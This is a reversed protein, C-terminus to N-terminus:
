FDFRAGFTWGQLFLDGQNAFFKGFNFDDCFIPFQNQGFYVHSEWGAQLGLHFRDDDFKTDWRLGLLLDIVPHAIRRLRDKVRAYKGKPLSSAGNSFSVTAPTDKDILRIKHRGYLIAASIDTFISWGGGLGWQSDLGGELGVGRWRDHYRIQVKNPTSLGNDFNKYNANLDQRLWDARIGGHPRLTLWRSVFFERGLDLDLQNFYLKWRADAKRCFNIDSIPDTSPVLTPFIFKNRSSHLVKRHSETNFHLWTFDIDWGDHPIVYGIGVRSGVDWKGRVNEIKADSLNVSTHENVVALPMGGQNATWYLLEGFVFLDAGHKITPNAPPNMMGTQGRRQELASVRNELNRIQGSNDAANLLTTLVALPAAFGLWTKKLNWHM